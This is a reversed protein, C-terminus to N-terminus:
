ASRRAATPTGCAAAETPATKIRVPYYTHARSFGDWITWRWTGAKPFIVNAHYVGTKRTPVARFARVQSGNQIRVEPALGALPRVGHQLVTLDVSWPVCARARDPTSSLQVTAWGGALATGTLALAVLLGTMAFLINRRM